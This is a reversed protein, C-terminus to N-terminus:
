VMSGTARNKKGDRDLHEGDTTANEKKAEREVGTEDAAAGVGAALQAEILANRLLRIIVPAVGAKTMARAGGTTLSLNQVTLVGECRVRRDDPFAELAAVVATPVGGKYRRPCGMRLIGYANLPKSSHVDPAEAPWSHFGKKTRTQSNACIWIM